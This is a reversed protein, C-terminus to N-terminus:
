YAEIAIGNNITFMHNEKGKYVSDWYGEDLTEFSNISKCVLFTIPLVQDAQKKVLDKAENELYSFLKKTDALKRLAVELEAKTLNSKVEGVALVEEVPYFNAVGDSTIGDADSNYIIVDCQTNVENDKNYIFGEGVSYEKGICDALLMNLCKERYEGFEGPHILKDDRKFLSEADNEFTNIFNDIERNILTRFINEAM